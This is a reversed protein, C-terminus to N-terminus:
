GIQGHIGVIVAAIRNIADNVTTPVGPGTWFGGGSSDTYLGTGSMLKAGAAIAVDNGADDTFMLGNPTDSKIWLQGYAAVDANANAQEKMSMTGDVKLNNGITVNPLVISRAPLWVDNGIKVPGFDAPFGKLIDLWAGHTWIM